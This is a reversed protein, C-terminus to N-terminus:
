VVSVACKKNGEANSARRRKEQQRAEADLREPDFLRGTGFDVLSKKGRFFM